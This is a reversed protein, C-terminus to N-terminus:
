EFNIEAYAVKQNYRRCYLLVYRYHNINITNSISFSQAGEDNIEDSILPINEQSDTVNSLYIVLDPIGGSVKFQENVHIKTENETTSIHFSGTTQYDSNTIFDGSAILTLTETNEITEEQNNNLTEDALMTATDTEEIESFVQFDEDPECSNLFLAMGISLILHSKM